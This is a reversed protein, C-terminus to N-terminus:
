HQNYVESPTKYWLASHLRSNNYKEFYLSLGHYVDVPTQYDHIHIDEYKVTRWLREIRINDSYRWVGDMSITVWAKELIATFSPSTFQSWQDSNFIEPVGTWLAKDLVGNCFESDMSPSVDWAIVKRSYRDIIALLYVFWSPLKIYTIDTSRVQNSREISVWRLLYPYTKHSKNRISTKKKPYIAMIGMSHMMRCVRKRWRDYWKRKLEACVRRSGYYPHETYIEDIQDMINV